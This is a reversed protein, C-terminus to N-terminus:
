KVLIINWPKNIRNNKVQELFTTFLTFSLILLSSFSEEVQLHLVLSLASDWTYVSRPNLFDDKDLLKLIEGTANKIM